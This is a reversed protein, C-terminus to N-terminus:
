HSRLYTALNVNKNTIGLKKRIQERHKQVTLISLNLKESIEKSSLGNKIMDCVQSERSTLSAYRDKFTELDKGLIANYNAELEEFKDARGQIDLMDKLKKMFPQLAQEIDKFVQRKHSQRQSELHELVQNLAINKETLIKREARLERTTKKLEEESRKRETVDRVLAVFRNDRNEPDGRSAISLEFWFTEDNIDLSYAIGSSRGKEAAEEIAKHIAAV